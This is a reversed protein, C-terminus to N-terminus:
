RFDFLCSSQKEVVLFGLISTWSVSCVQSRLIFCERCEFGDFITMEYEFELLILSNQVQSSLGPLPRGMGQNGVLQRM